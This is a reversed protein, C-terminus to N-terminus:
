KAHKRIWERGAEILKDLAVFHKKGNREDLRAKTNNQVLMVFEAELKTGVTSTWSRFKSEPETDTDALVPRSGAEQEPKPPSRTESKVAEAVPAASISRDRAQLTKLSELHDNTALTDAHQDGLVRRMTELTLEYLRKADDHRGQLVYVSALNSRARLRNPHEEWSLGTTLAPQLITEADDYRGQSKYISALFDVIRLAEPGHGGFRFLIELAQKQLEEAKDIRGQAHYISALTTMSEATSPNESGRPQNELARTLIAEAENQRDQSFYMVGLDKMTALTDAHGDGLTARQQALAEEFLKEAQNHRDQLVYVSALNFMSRLTAPDDQGLVRRMKEVTQKQLREAEDYREQGQYVLALANMMALTDPHSDGEIDRYQEVLQKYLVEAEDYRGRLKHGSAQAVIRSLDPGPETPVACIVSVALTLMKSATVYGGVALLSQKWTIGYIGHMVFGLGAAAVALGILTALLSPMIFLLPIRVIATAVWMFVVLMGAKLFTSLDSGFAQKTVICMMGILILGEIALFLVLGIVTGIM